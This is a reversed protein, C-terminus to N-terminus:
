TRKTKKELSTTINFESTMKIRDIAEQFSVTHLKSKFSSEFVSKLNKDKKEKYGKKVNEDIQSFILYESHSILVQKLLIEIGHQIFLISDKLFYYRNKSKRKTHYCEEYQILYDFGKKLSDIGSELFHLRM